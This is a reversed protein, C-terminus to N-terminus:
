NEFHWPLRVESSHYIRYWWIHWLCLQTSGMKLNQNPHFRITSHDQYCCFLSRTNFISKLLLQWFQWFLFDSTPHGKIPNAGCTTSIIDGRFNFQNLKGFDSIQLLKCSWTLSLSTDFWIQRLNLSRTKFHSSSFLCCWCPIMKKIM